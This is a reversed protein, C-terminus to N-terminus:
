YPKKVHYSLNFGKVLVWNQPISGSSARKASRMSESLNPKRSPEERARERNMYKRM